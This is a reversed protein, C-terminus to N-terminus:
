KQTVTWDAYKVVAGCPLSTIGDVFTTVDTNIDFELKTPKHAKEIIKGKEDRLDECTHTFVQKTPESPQGDKSQNSLPLELISDQVLERYESFLEEDIVKFRNKNKSDVILGYQAVADSMIATYKNSPKGNDKILLENKNYGFESAFNYVLGGIVSAIKQDLTMVQGNDQAQIGWVQINYIQDFDELTEEFRENVVLNNMSSKAILHYYNRSPYDSTIKIGLHKNESPLIREIFRQVDSIIGIEKDNLFTIAM